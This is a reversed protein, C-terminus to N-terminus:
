SNAEKWVLIERVGKPPRGMEERFAKMEEESLL